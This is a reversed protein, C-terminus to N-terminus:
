WGRLFLESPADGSFVARPLDLMLFEPDHCLFDMVLRVAGRGDMPTHRIPLIRLCPYKM